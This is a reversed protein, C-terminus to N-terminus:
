PWRVSAQHEDPRYMRLKYHMAPRAPDFVNAYGLRQSVAVAQEPTLQRLVESWHQRRDTVRAWFATCLEM